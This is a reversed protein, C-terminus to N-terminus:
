ELETLYLHKYFENNKILDEHTGEGINKGDDIIIIRDSDIVTSLRHAVILITYQGKMNNIAKKIEYQTENDLASTAEDFMIIETKKLLARAIALRQRQGGSLTVGGEGILTDYKDPLTMIFDHLSAMKCIEKMEKDTMNSKVLKLNDKISFNFIYPNQTIISMNNRITDKSLDNINVGDLKISGDDINYLKNILSFITSKGSGSKGVFAITENANIKFSLNKLVKQKNNYSFKVNKFEFNGELKKIDKNGFEEKKLIDSSIIEFVRNASINFDKMQEIISTFYTLLNIVRDKYMYAILFSSITIANDKLLFIGILIFIFNFLDRSNGIIYKLFLNVSIM